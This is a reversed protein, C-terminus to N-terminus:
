FLAEEYIDFVSKSETISLREIKADDKNNTFWKAERLSRFKKIPEGDLVVVHTFPHPNYQTVCSM